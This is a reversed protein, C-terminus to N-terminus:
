ANKSRTAKIILNIILVLLVIPLALAVLELLIWVFKMCGCGKLLYM